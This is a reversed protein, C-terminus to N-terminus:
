EESRVRAGIPSSKFAKFGEIASSEVTKLLNGDGYFKVTDNNVVLSLNSYSSKKEYQVAGFSKDKNAGLSDIYKVILVLNNINGKIIWGLLSSVCDGYAMGSITFEQGLDLSKSEDDIRRFERIGYDSITEIGYENSEEIQ